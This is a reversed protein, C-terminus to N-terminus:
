PVLWRAKYAHESLEVSFQPNLFHLQYTWWVGRESQTYVIQGNGSNISLSKIDKVGRLPEFISFESNEPHFVFTQESTTLYLM